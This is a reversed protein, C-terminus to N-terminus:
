MRGAPLPSTGARETGHQRLVRYQEPTLRRRWEEDPFNVAFTETSKSKTSFLGMAAGGILVTMASFSLQRRTIM